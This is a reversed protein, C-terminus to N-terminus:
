AMKNESMFEQSAVEMSDALNSLHVSKGIEMTKFFNIDSKVDTM